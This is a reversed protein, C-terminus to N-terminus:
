YVTSGVVENLVSFMEIFIVATFAISAVVNIAISVWMPAIGSGTRRRVVVSRGIVYVLYSIFVFAFHFPFPVERRKLEKWDFYALLALVGYIVWGSALVILYQPTFISTISSLSSAGSLSTSLSNRFYESWDILFLLPYQVLPLLVILWIFRTYPRTGEPAKLPAAIQYAQVRPDHLHDTWQAGDWWRSQPTGAPDPYWGPPTVATSDTASM